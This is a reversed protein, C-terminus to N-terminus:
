LEPFIQHLTALMRQYHSGQWYIKGCQPCKVFDSHSSYSKPPVSERAAEKPISLLRANCILCRSFFRKSDISLHLTNVVLRLQESLTETNIYLAKSDAANQRYKSNRTLFKRNPLNTAFRHHADRRPPYLTDFGMIRLYKALRGLMNDAIFQM